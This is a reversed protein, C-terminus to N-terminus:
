TDALTRPGGGPQGYQSLYRNIMAVAEDFGIKLTGTSITIPSGCMKFTSKRLRRTLWGGTECYRDPDTVFVVLFRQKYSQYEVLGTIDAWPVLGVPFGSSNDLLGSDSLVLGPRLDFLKWVGIILTLGFFGMAVAGVGHVVVPSRYRQGDQITANDLTFLWYGLAVFALSGAILLLFKKRSLAVTKTGLEPM